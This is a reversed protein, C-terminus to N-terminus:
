ALYKEDYRIGAEELLKRYEDLFSIQKHHEAQNKIYEIVSERDAWRLSFAGYGDQWGPWNRIPGERRLWNSSGSKIKEVYKSVNLSPPLSVLIHVHDAMGGIRVLKCSLDKTIGWIYAYLHDRASDPTIM